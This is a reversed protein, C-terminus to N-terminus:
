RLSKSSNDRRRTKCSNPRIVGHDHTSLTQSGVRGFTQDRYAIELYVVLFDVVQKIGLLVDAELDTFVRIDADIDIPSAAKRCRLM